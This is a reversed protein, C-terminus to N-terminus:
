EIFVTLVTALNFVAHVLIPGLLSQTRAALTGLFLALFFLPVPAPWFNTHMAAFILSSAYVARALGPRPLIRKTLWEFALYGPGATVLFILPGWTKAGYGQAIAVLLSILMTLDAWFPEAAMKRLILGRFLTEEALPAFLVATLVLAVYHPWSPAEAWEKLLEHEKVPWLLLSVMWVGLTVVFVVPWVLGGLLVDERWRRWNWGLQYAPVSLFRTPTWIFIVAQTAAALAFRWLAWEKPWNIVEIWLSSLLLSAVMLLVVQFAGWSVEYFRQAPWVKNVRKGLQWALVASGLWWVLTIAGGALAVAYTQSWVQEWSLPGQSTAAGGGEEALYSLLM